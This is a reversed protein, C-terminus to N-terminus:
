RGEKAVLDITGGAGQIKETAARSCGQVRVTLAFPLEGEALVKVRKASRPVMGRTKLATADVVDGAQFRQALDAVNVAAYPIRFINKFGRKPMRRYLPMQGGEFGTGFTAGSRCKQGKYGKGATTGQGSGYGRGLRKRKKKAGAPPSLTALTTGM